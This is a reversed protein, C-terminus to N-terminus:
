VGREIFEILSHIIKIHIEQVRDAYPSNPAKIEIDCLAAMEGGTKGTLGIVKM